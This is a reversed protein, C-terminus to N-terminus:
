YLFFQLGVNKVKDKVQLKSAIGTKHFVDLVDKYREFYLDNHKNSVSKCSYKKRLRIKIKFLIASVLLGCVGQILFKLSLYTLDKKSLNTQPLGIKRTLRM